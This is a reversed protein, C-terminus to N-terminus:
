KKIAQDDLLECTLKASFSVMTPKPAPDQGFAWDISGKMTFTKMDRTLEGTGTFTDAAKPKTVSLKLPVAKGIVEGDKVGAKTGQVEGRSVHVGYILVVDLDRTAGDSGRHEHLSVVVHSKDGGHDGVGKCILWLSDKAHAVGTSALLTVAVLFRKM